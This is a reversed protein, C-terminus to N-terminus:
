LFTPSPIGSEKCHAMDGTNWGENEVHMGVDPINYDQISIQKWKEIDEPEINKDWDLYHITNNLMVGRNAISDELKNDKRKVHQFIITLNRM